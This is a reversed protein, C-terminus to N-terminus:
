YAAYTANVAWYESHVGSQGLMGQINIAVKVRQKMQETSGKFYQLWNMIMPTKDNVGVNLGGDSYNLHNRTQLLGVSELLAIVTMRLMLSRQGLSLLDELSLSTFHPTGNFDSIADIVAWAIMRDSSEEGRLLRNLEPFDRMFLRVEQVFLDFQRTMGPIGELSM